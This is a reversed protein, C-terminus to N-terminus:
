ACGCHYMVLLRFPGGGGPDMNMVCPSTSQTEIDTVDDVHEFLPTVVCMYVLTGTDSNVGHVSDWHVLTM